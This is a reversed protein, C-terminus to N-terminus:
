QVPEVDRKFFPSATPQDDRIVWVIYATEDTVTGPRRTRDHAPVTVRQGHRFQMVHGHRYHLDQLPTTM